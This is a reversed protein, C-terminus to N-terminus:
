SDRPMLGDIVRLVAALDLGRSTFAGEGKLIALMDFLRFARADDLMEATKTGDAHTCEFQAPKGTRMFMLLTGHPAGIVADMTKHPINCAKLAHLLYAIGGEPDKRALIAACQADSWRARPAGRGSPEATDTKTTDTTTDM